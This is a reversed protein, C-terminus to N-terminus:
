FYFSNHFFYNGALLVISVNSVTANLICHGFDMLKVTSSLKGLYYTDLTVGISPLIMYIIAMCVDKVMQYRPLIVM